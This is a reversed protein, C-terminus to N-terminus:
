RRPPRLLVTMYWPKKPTQGSPRPSHYGRRHGTSQGEPRNANLHQNSGKQLALELLLVTLNEYNLIRAKGEATAPCGESVDKPIKAVLWFLLENSGYSGPALQGM